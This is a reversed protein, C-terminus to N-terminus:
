AHATDTVLVAGLCALREARADAHPSEGAAVLHM